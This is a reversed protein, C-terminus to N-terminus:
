TRSHIRLGLTRAKPPGLSWTHLEARGTISESSLALNLPLLPGTVATGCLTNAGPLPPPCGQSLQSARWGGEQLVCTSTVSCLWFCSQAAERASLSVHGTTCATHTHTHTQHTCVHPRAQTQQTATGTWGFVRLHRDEQGRQQKM